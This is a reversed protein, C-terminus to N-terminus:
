SDALLTHTSADSADVLCTRTEFDILIKGVQTHAHVLPLKTAREPNRVWEESIADWYLDIPNGGEGYRILFLKEPEKKKKSM